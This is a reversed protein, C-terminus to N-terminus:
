RRSREALTRWMQEAGWGVLAFSAALVAFFLPRYMAGWCLDWYRTYIDLALFVFGFSRTTADDYKLGHWTSTGAAITLALTWQVTLWLRPTRWLGHLTNIASGYWLGFLFLYTLGWIRTSSWFPSTRPHIRICCATSILIGGLIVFRISYDRQLIDISGRCQKDSETGVEM